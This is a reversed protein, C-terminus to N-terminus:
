VKVLWRFNLDLTLNMAEIEALKAKGEAPAKYMHPTMLLLEALQQQNLEPTITELGIEEQLHLGHQEAQALSPLESQRVEPYIIERMEILHRPGPDLLLLKGGPKLLQSFGSFSYFGFLCLLLDTQQPLLPPNKSSAVLWAIQKSRKAAAAVAWKSIDFGCYRHQAFRQQIQQLYYGEGCGADVVTKGEDIDLLPAVQHLLADSIAQYTGSDLVQKRASVMAKSDGPDRSRKHQVPLLNLYGQKAMDYSHGQACQWSRGDAHLPQQDIPCCLLEDYRSESM